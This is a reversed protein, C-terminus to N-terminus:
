GIVLKNEEDNFSHEPIELNLPAPGKRIRGSADYHSGHCPCFYGGFEGANAIPVCGLHTCIGLVVLWEPKTVRDDDSEKHRLTSIDVARETDIESQPRHRVFVPKGRWKFTVNKGEPISALDVEMKALALVDASASMTDLFDVVLSKALQLGAVATGAGLLYTFARRQYDAENDNSSDRKYVDFNPHDIHALRVQTKGFLSSSVSLNSQIRNNSSTKSSTTNVGLRTGTPARMATMTARQALTLARTVSPGSFTRLSM